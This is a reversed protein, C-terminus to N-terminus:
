EERLAEAQSTRAMRWGPYLGALLAAGVALILAEIMVGPEVLMRMSWGFARRNIVHILLQALVVGVPLALIGAAIGMFGTQVTVLGFVQKPTLGIARLVALEHARELQLAMFASLIGVISVLVALLRLVNTIAFTRDFVKLSAARIDRNARVVIAQDGASTARVAEIVQDMSARPQLYLGLSSVSNDNFYHEYLSRHMLILGHESGYDYFVGVIPLSLDGRDTHLRVRGGTGTANHYAYPESVLVARDADFEKWATRADGSQLRFSPPFGRAFDLALIQTLGRKTQLIVRRARSIGLIGATHEIRAIIRPDIPPPSHSPDFLPRSVYIDARLTSDLWLQVTARFSEVMIGVGVTTAVALMLAAIAVGTRSLSAIIGRLALRSIIGSVPGSGRGLLVSGTTVMAAVALPTLLALGVIIMFLAAFGLILNKSPLLLLLLACAALGVGTLGLRPLLARVRQEVVSRRLAAHPSTGAAELSPVFAALMTTGLGLAVGKLLSTPSIMLRNVTVTFYLDNITRTVLHVLGQGLIIGLILGAISGILGMVAAEGLILGFIERRTVGLVRLTGILHRRRLVAFTITNYILFMGVVLALLSMATLNTRFARTMQILANSRAQAPVIEIGPPLLSLIRARLSTGANGKPLVLNISNLRGVRGMFEQASSIDSLALGDTSASANSGPLLGVLKAASLHGACQLTFRDGIKLHLQRATAPSLLLAGQQTLLRLIALSGIGSIQGANEGAAFPDIGVIHLIQGRAKGYGDVVPASTEIGVNVRLDRYLNEPVGAPGGVIVDTARGTVADVSLHFARTASTNALDVAVVVSVGLAVGLITLFLQWPHRALSRISSRWVTTTIM